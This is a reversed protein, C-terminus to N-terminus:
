KEEDHKGEVKIKFHVYKQIFEILYPLVLAVPVAFLTYPARDLPLALPYFVNVLQSLLKAFLFILVTVICYKVAFAFSFVLKEKKRSYCIYMTIMPVFLLNMLVIIM